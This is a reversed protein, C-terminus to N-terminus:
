AAQAKQEAGFVAMHLLLGVLNRKTGLIERVIFASHFHLPQFVLPCQLLILSAMSTDRKPLHSLKAGNEYWLSKCAPICTGVMIFHFM